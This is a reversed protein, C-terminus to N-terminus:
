IYVFYYLILTDECMYVEPRGSTWFRYMWFRKARADATRKKAHWDKKSGFGRGFEIQNRYHACAFPWASHEVHLSWLTM